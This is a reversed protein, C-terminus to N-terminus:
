TQFHSTLHIEMKRRCGEVCRMLSKFLGLLFLLIMPLHTRVEALGGWLRGPSRPVDCSSSIQKKDQQPSLCSAERFCINAVLKELLIGCPNKLTVSHLHFSAAVCIDSFAGKCTLLSTM